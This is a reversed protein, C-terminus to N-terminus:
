EIQQQALRGNNQNLEDFPNTTDTAICLTRLVGVLIYNIDADLPAQM